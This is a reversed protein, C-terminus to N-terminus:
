KNKEEEEEGGGGSYVIRLLDEGLLSKEKRNPPRTPHTRKDRSM